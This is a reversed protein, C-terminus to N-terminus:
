IEKKLYVMNAIVASVALMALGVAIGFVPILFQKNSFFDVFGGIMVGLNGRRALFMGALFVVYVPVNTFVNAKAFSFKLYVPYTVSVAFCYYMFSLAVAALLLPQGLELGRIRTVVQALIIAVILSVVGIILAYLYRGTVMESKRLPLIGYLRESRSKEYISFVSGGAFQVFVMFFALTFAAQKTLVGVLTSVVLAIVFIMQATSGAKMTYFDLKIANGIRNM